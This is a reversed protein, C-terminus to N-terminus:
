MWDGSYKMLFSIMCPFAIDSILIAMLRAYKNVKYFVSVVRCNLLNITQLSKLSSLLLCLFPDFYLASELFFSGFIFDFVLNFIILYLLFSIFLFFYLFCKWSIVTTMFLNIKCRRSVFLHFSQLLDNDTLESIAAQTCLNIGMLKRVSFLNIFHNSTM